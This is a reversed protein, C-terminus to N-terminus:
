ESPGGKVEHRGIRVAAFSAAVIAAVGLLALILTPTSSAGADSQGGAASAPVACALLLVTAVLAVFLLRTHRTTSRATPRQM